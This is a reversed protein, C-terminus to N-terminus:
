PIGKLRYFASPESRSVRGTWSTAGYVDAVPQWDGGVGGASREVRYGFASDDWELRIAEDGSCTVDTIRPRQLASVTLRVAMATAVVEQTRSGGFSLSCTAGAGLSGSGSSSLHLVDGEQRWSAGSLWTVTCGPFQASAEWSLASRDTDNSIVIQGGFGTQWEGSISCSMVGGPLEQSCLYVTDPAPYAAVDAGCTRVSGEGFTFTRTESQPVASRSVNQFAPFTYAATRDQPSRMYEVLAGLGVLWVDQFTQVWDLFASMTQARDVWVGAHLFVGMPSRNGNYHALFNTQLTALAQADSGGPDMAAWQSSAPDYLSWLPVEFLGPLPGEPALGTWANQKLGDDLTYPWILRSLSESYLGPAETVSSDYAFGQEALIAFSDNDFELFPARFGRIGSEPVAALRSLTKRCGVIEARWTPRDTDTHTTHTMTHVAIEHGQAYLRNVLWYDSWRTSVFFTAQIPTGNPNVRGPLFQQVVNFSSDNVADDFTMLVLQPTNTPTLGGPPSVSVDVRSGAHCLFAAVGVAWALRTVCM